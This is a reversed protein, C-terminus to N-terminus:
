AASAPQAPVADADSVLLEAIDARASKGTVRKRVIARVRKMLEEDSRAEDLLASGIIALGRQRQAHHAKEAEKLAQQLRTLRQAPTERRRGSKRPSSPTESTM